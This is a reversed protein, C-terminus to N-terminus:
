RRGWRVIRDNAPLWNEGRFNGANGFKNVCTKFLRNCGQELLATDGVLVPLVWPVVFTLEMNGGSPKDSKVELALGANAGTIFQARGYAFIGVGSTAGSFTIVQQGSAVATVTCPTNQFNAATLTPGIFSDGYNHGGVFCQADFLARVRCTASTVHGVKQQLRASLSRFEATYTGESFTVEGLQGTVLITSSVLPNETYDVLRLELAASDYRGALLDQDTIRASSLVGSFDINDVGTSATQRLSSAAISDMAEYVVGDSFLLNANCTTLGFTVGDQRTVKVLIASTIVSGAVLAAIRAPVTRPM